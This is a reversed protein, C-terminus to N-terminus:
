QKLAANQERAAQTSSSRQLKLAACAARAGFRRHPRMVACRARHRPWISAESGCRSAFRLSAYGARLCMDPVPRFRARLM